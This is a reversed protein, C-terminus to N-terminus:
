RCYRYSGRQSSWYAGTSVKSQGSGSSSIEVDIAASGRCFIGRYRALSESEEKPRFGELLLRERIAELSGSISGNAVREYSYGSFLIKSVERESTIEWDQPAAHRSFSKLDNVAVKGSGDYDMFIKIFAFIILLLAIASILRRAMKGVMVSEGPKEM